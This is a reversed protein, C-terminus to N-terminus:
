DYNTFDKAAIQYGQFFTQRTKKEKRKVINYYFELVMSDKISIRQNADCDFEKVFYNTFAILGIISDKDHKFLTQSCLLAKDM